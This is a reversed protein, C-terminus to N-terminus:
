CTSRERTKGLVMAVYVFAKHLKATAAWNSVQKGCNRTIANDGGPHAAAFGTMDFVGNGVQAYM